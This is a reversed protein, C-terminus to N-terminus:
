LCSDVLNYYQQLILSGMDDGYQALKISGLIAAKKMEHSLVENALVDQIFNHNASLIKHGVTDFKPLFDSVQLVIEKGTETRIHELQQHDIPSFPFFLGPDFRNAMTLSNTTFAFGILQVFLFIKKYINM